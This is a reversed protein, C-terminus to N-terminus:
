GRTDYIHPVAQSRPPPTVERAITGEAAKIAEDEEELKKAGDDGDELPVEGEQEQPHDFSVEGEAQHGESDSAVFGRRYVKRLASGRVAPEGKRREWTREEEATEDDEVILDVADPPLVHSKGPSM